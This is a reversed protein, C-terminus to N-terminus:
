IVAQITSAPRLSLVGVPGLLAVFGVLLYASVFTGSADAMAGAVSPGIAQGLGAFLTIFGLAALVM